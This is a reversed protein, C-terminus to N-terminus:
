ACALSLNLCLPPPPPPRRRACCSYFQLRGPELAMGHWATGTLALSLPTCGQPIGLAGAFCESTSGLGLPPALHLNRSAIRQAGSKCHLENSVLEGTTTAVGYLLCPTTELISCATKPGNSSNSRSPNAISFHCQAPKDTDGNDNWGGGASNPTLNFFHCRSSAQTGCDLAM